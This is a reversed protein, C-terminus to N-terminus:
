RSLSARPRWQDNARATELAKASESTKKLGAAPQLLPGSAPRWQATAPAPLPAPRPASDSTPKAVAGPACAPKCPSTHWPYDFQRRYDYCEFCCCGSRAQRRWPEHGFAPGIAALVLLTLIAARM